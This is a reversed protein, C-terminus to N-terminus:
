GCVSIKRRQTGPIVRTPAKLAKEKMGQWVKDAGTITAVLLWCRMRLEFRCVCLFRFSVKSPAWPSASQARHPCRAGTVSSRPFRSGWSVARSATRDKRVRLSSHDWVIAKSTSEGPQLPFVARGGLVTPPPSPPGPLRAVAWLAGTCSTPTVTVLPAAGLTSASRAHGFVSALPGRSTPTTKNNVKQALHLLQHRTRHSHRLWVAGQTNRGNRGDRGAESKWRWSGRDKGSKWRDTGPHTASGRMEQGQPRGRGEVLM